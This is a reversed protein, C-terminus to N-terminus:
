LYNVKNRNMLKFEIISDLSPNKSKNLEEEFLEFSVSRTRGKEYLIAESLIRKRLSEKM